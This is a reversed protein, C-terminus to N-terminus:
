AIANSTDPYLQGQGVKRIPIPSMSNLTSFFAGANTFPISNILTAVCNLACAAAMNNVMVTQMDIRDTCSDEDHHCKPCEEVTVEVNCTPCHWPAQRLMQPMALFADLHFHGSGVSGSAAILPKVAMPWGFLSMLVQGGRMENGIDIYAAGATHGDQYLRSALDKIAARAKWNDVCGIIITAPYGGNSTLHGWVGTNALDTRIQGILSQNSGLALRQTYSSTTLGIRRYRTATILAKHMGVDVPAFMQRRLNREEVVDHDIITIHDGESLIQSLPSIVRAGSGGAGVVIVHRRTTLQLSSTCLVGPPQAAEEAGAPAEDGKPTTAKTPAAGFNITTGTTSAFRGPQESITFPAPRRTAM